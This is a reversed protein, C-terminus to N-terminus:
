GAALAVVQGATFRTREEANKLVFAFLDTRPAGDPLIARPQDTWSEIDVGNLQAGPRLTFDPGARLAVLVYVRGELGVVHEVVFTTKADMM